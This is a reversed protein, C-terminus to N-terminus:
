HSGIIIRYYKPLFSYALYAAILLGIVGDVKPTDFISVVVGSAVVGWSILYDMHVHAHALHHTKTRRYPPVFEAFYLTIKGVGVGILGGIVILWPELVIGSVIKEIGAFAVGAIAILLLIFSILAGLQRVDKEHHNNNRLFFIVLLSIVADSGDFLTHWADGRLAASAAIMSM